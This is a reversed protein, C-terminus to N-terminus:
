LDCYILQDNFEMSKLFDCTFDTWLRMGNRYILIIWWLPRKEKSTSIRVRYVYKMDRCMSHTEGTEVENM